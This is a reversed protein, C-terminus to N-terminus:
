RGEEVRFDIFDQEQLEEALQAINFQRTSADIEKQIMKKAEDVVLEKVPSDEADIWTGPVVTSLIDKAM